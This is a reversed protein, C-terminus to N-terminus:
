KAMFTKGDQDWVLHDYKKRVWEVTDGVIELMAERCHERYIRADKRESPDMEQHIEYFRLTLFSERGVYAMLERSAQQPLYRTANGSVGQTKVEKAALRSVALLGFPIGAPAYLDAVRRLWKQDDRERIIQEKIARQARADGCAAHAALLRRRRAVSRAPVENLRDALAPTVISAPFLHAEAAAYRELAPHKLATVLVSALAKGLAGHMREPSVAAGDRDRLALVAPDSPDLVLPSRGAALANALEAGRLRFLAGLVKLVDKDPAVKRGEEHLLRLLQTHLAPIAYAMQISRSGSLIDATNSLGHKSKLNKIAEMLGSDGFVKERDPSDQSMLRDLIKEVRVLRRELNALRAASDGNEGAGRCFQSFVLLSLVLCTKPSIMPCM